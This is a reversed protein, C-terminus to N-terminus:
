PAGLPFSLIFNTPFTAMTVPDELPIPWAAATCSAESPAETVMWPRDKSPTWTLSRREADELRLLAFVVSTWFDGEKSWWVVRFRTVDAPLCPKNIEGCDVACQSLASSDIAECATDVFVLQRRGNGM